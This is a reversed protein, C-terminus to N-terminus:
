SFTSIIDNLENFPNDTKADAELENSWIENNILYRFQYNNNQELEITQSFDGSKLAKMNVVTQDWNNFDGIVQITQAGNADEANVRFSVKCVPKSKLFQNKIGM